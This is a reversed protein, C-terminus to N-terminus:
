KVDITYTNPMLYGELKNKNDQATELFEYDFDGAEILEVFRDYDGIGQDALSKATQYITYGEPITFNTTNVKGGVIIDAISQYDMSPSLTYTGAKYQSDYGKMRSWLKFENVDDIIGSDVLVQAIIGTGSGSEITLSVTETNNEDLAAGLGNLFIIVAGGAVVALVLVAILIKKGLGM